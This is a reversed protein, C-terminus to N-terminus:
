IIILPTQRSPPQWCECKHARGRLSFSFFTHELGFSNQRPAHPFKDFDHWSHRAAERLRERCLNRQDLFFLNTRCILALLRPKATEYCLSFHDVEAFQKM